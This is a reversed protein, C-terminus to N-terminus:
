FILGLGYSIAVIISGFIAIEMMSKFLAWRAQGIVRAKVLGLVFFQALGIMLAPVLIDSEGHIGKVVIYPILPIIGSILFSFFNILGV